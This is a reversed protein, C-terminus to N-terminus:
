SLEEVLAGEFLGFGFEDYARQDGDHLVDMTLPEHDAIKGRVMNDVVGIRMVQPDDFKQLKSSLCNKSQLTTTSPFGYEAGSTSM